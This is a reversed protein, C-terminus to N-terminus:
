KTYIDQKDSIIERYKLKLEYNQISNFWDLAETYNGENYYLIGINVRPDDFLPSIRIAEKYHFLAKEKLGMKLYCSGLDNQIHQNYPSFKQAKLFDELALEQNGLVFNATGRYWHIPITTPDVTYLKSYAVDSAHILEPWRQQQKLIHVNKTNLEGGIRKKSIFLMLSTSTIIIFLIGKTINSITNNPKSSKPFLLGSLTFILLLIEIREKPFSFFAIVMFGIVFSLQTVNVLQNSYSIKSKLDLFGKRLITLFFGFYLLLGIIGTEAWVWLWDNHPRQFTTSDMEVSYLGHVSYNPYEIQWNGTGVGWLPSQQIVSATKEWLNIREFGTQSQWLVDIKSADLLPILQQTFLLYLFSTVGLIFIVIFGKKLINVTKSHLGLSIKRLFFIGLVVTIGLYVSRTKLYLILLLTAIFLTATVKKWHKELKFFAMGLFGCILFLVTAFLNKHGSIGRIEYLPNELNSDMQFIQWCTFLLIPISILTIMKLSRSLFDEDNLQFWRSFYFAAFAIMIKQSEFIAESFNTAWSVSVTSWIFYGLLLGTPLDIPPWQLDNEKGLGKIGIFLATFLFALSAFAYRPLLTYDLLRPHFCFLSFGLISILYFLGLKNIWPSIKPSQNTHIENKM